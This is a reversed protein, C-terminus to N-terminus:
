GFPALLHKRIDFPRIVDLDYKDIAMNQMALVENPTFYAHIHAQRLPEPYGNYFMANGKLLELAEVCEKASDLAVDVRFSFGDPSFKVVFVKGFLYHRIKESLKDHVYIYCSKPVNELLGILREGTKLKLWSQKSIAIIINGNERAIKVSDRLLGMPTDITQTLSGDWLVIGNEVINSAYRQALRELFNRTRDPMKRVPPPSVRDLGFIKERFYNYIERNSETFHAMYPGFKEVSTEGSMQMVVAIRFAAVVGQDTEGLKVSSSDVAIVPTDSPQGAELPKVEDREGVSKDLLLTLDDEIEDAKDIEEDNIYIFEDLNVYRPRFLEAEPFHEELVGVLSKLIEGESTLDGGKM